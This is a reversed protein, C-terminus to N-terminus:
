VSRRKDSKKLPENPPTQTIRIKYPKSPQKIPM